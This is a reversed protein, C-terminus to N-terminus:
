VHARGIQIGGTVLGVPMLGRILQKTQGIAENALDTLHKVGASEPLGRKELEQAIAKSKLAIGTLLQGLGDHLERGIIRREQGGIELLEREMREKLRKEERLAEEVSKQETIDTYVGLVSGSKGIPYYCTTWRRGFFRKDHVTKPLGTRRVEEAPCDSCRRSSKFFVKYCPRGKLDEPNSHFQRNVAGNTWVIRYDRDALVVYEFMADLIASKEQESALLAERDQEHVRQLSELEEIKNHLASLYGRKAPVSRQKSETMFTVGFKM